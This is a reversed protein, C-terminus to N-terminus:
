PHPLRTGGAAAAISDHRSEDKLSTIHMSVEDRMSPEKAVWCLM